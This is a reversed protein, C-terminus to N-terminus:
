TDLASAITVARQHKDSFFGHGPLFVTGKPVVTRWRLKSWGHVAQWWDETLQPERFLPPFAPDADGKAPQPYPVTPAKKAVYIGGVHIPAAECRSPPCLEDILDALQARAGAVFVGVFERNDILRVLYAQYAM